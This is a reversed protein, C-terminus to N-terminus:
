LRVLRLLNQRSHEMHRCAAENVDIINGSPVQLMFILDNSNDLLTRFRELEGLRQQLEPYYSKRVSHEGLGILKEWLEERNTTPDTPKKM